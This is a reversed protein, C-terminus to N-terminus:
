IVAQSRKCEECPCVERLLEWSYIGLDHNDNWSFKIAYKGVGEASLPKATPKLILLAGPAATQRIARVGDPSKGARRRVNCLSLCRASLHFRIIRGTATGGSSTWGQGTTLHVKVSRPDTAAAPRRFRPSCPTLIAYFPPISRLAASAEDATSHAAHSRRSSPPRGRSSCSREASLRPPQGWM